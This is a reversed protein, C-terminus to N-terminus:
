GSIRRFVWFGHAKLWKGISAQQQENLPQPVNPYHCSFIADDYSVFVGVKTATRECISSLLGRAIMSEFASESLCLRLISATITNDCCDGDLIKAVSTISPLLLPHEVLVSVLIKAWDDRTSRTILVPDYEALHAASGINGLVHLARSVKLGDRSVIWNELMKRAPMQQFLLAAIIQLEQTNTNTELAVCIGRWLNDAQDFDLVKQMRERVHEIDRSTHLSLVMEQVDQNAQLEFCRNRWLPNSMQIGNFILKEDATLMEKASLQLGGFLTDPFSASIAERLLVFDQSDAECILRLVEGLSIESQTVYRVLVDKALERLEPFRRAALLTQTPVIDPHMPPLTNWDYSSTNSPVQRADLLLKLTGALVWKEHSQFIVHLGQRSYPSLGSASFMKALWLRDNPSLRDDSEMVCALELACNISYIGIESAIANEEIESGADRIRQLTEYVREPYFNGISKKHKEGRPTLTMASGSDQFLTPSILFTLSFILSIIQSSLHERISLKRM